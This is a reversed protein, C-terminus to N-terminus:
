VDGSVEGQREGGDTFSPPPRSLSPEGKGPQVGSAGPPASHLHGVGLPVFRFLVVAAAAASSWALVRWVPSRSSRARMARELVRRERAADWKPVMSERAVAIHRSM